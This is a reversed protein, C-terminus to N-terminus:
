NRSLHFIQNRNSLPIGLSHVAHTAHKIWHGELHQSTEIRNRGEQINATASAAQCSGKGRRMWRSGADPHVSGLILDLKCGLM